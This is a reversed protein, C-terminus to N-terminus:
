TYKCSYCLVSFLMPGKTMSKMRALGKQPDLDKLLPMLYGLLLSRTLRAAFRRVASHRPRPNETKPGVRKVYQTTCTGNAMQCIDVTIGEGQINELIYCYFTAM